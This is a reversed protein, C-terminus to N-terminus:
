KNEEKKDEPKKEKEEKKDKKSSVATKQKLESLAKVAARAINLKNKSRSFIKSVVDKVGALDLVTRVSSGAVLGRGPKAPRIFVVAKASKAQIEHPISFNKTLTIKVRNKKAQRVAKEIAKSTDAAKGLGIGVDGKKNGVVVAVRFNFRRGGAVVRAVRRIDIVKHDFESRENSKFNRGGRM